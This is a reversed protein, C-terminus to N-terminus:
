PQEEPEYGAAHLPCTSSVFWGFKNGDGGRGLGHHNDVVPCTCGLRKAGAMGPAIGLTLAVRRRETAREEALLQALERRANQAVEGEANAWQRYRQEYHRAAEYAVGLCVALAPWKKPDPHHEPPDPMTTEKRKQWGRLVM